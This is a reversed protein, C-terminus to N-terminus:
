IFQPPSSLVFSLLSLPFPPSSIMRYKTMIKSQKRGGEGM